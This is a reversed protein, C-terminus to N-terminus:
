DKIKLDINMGGFFKSIWNFMLAGVIGTLFGVAAFIAPMGVLAGFALVTGYSLGPTETTTVLDLSVFLDIFFGGFSYLIGLALGFFAMIIAQLKAYGLVKIKKIKKM